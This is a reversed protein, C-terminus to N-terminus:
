EERPDRDTARRAAVGAEIVKLATHDKAQQETVQKLQEQVEAMDGLLGERTPYKQGIKQAMDMIADRMSLSAKLIKWLVTLFTGIVTLVPIYSAIFSVWAPVNAM